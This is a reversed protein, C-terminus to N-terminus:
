LTRRMVSYRRFEHFGAQAYIGATRDDTWLFYARTLGSDAMARLCQSLLVAGIGRGRHSAAVGFPGFREGDHRCFGVCAGGEMALFLHERSADGDLISRMSERVLRQWDGPFERRLFDLAPTIREARVPEFSVGQEALSSQRGEVWGTTQTVPLPAEMSLPRYAAEFGHSRLFRVAGPYAAEDVGPIFYNPAYPSVWVTKAGGSRLYDLTRELLVTGVGQRQYRADVAMLTIWSRDSDDPAEELPHLRLMGLMFGVVEGAVAAVSAGEARYNPDLLVKSALGELSLPDALMERNLLDVVGHLDGPLLSRIVM